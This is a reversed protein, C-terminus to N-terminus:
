QKPIFVNPRKNGFNVCKERSKQFWLMEEQALVNIYQSQLNKELMIFDHYQKRELQIHVGKICSELKM